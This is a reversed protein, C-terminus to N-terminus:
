AWWFWVDLAWTGFFFPLADDRSFESTLGGFFEGAFMGCVGDLFWGLVVGVVFPRKQITKKFFKRCHGWHHLALFVLRNM